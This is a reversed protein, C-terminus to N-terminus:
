CGALAQEFDSILDRSDEIGISVRVLSETVGCEQRQLPTLEYHSTFAPVCVTTEVGGLSMAPTAVRLKELFNTASCERRLELSLMGGFGSMQAAAIEHHRHSELGPYLVDVVADQTELFQAVALANENQRQVRVALTRLSRDLLYCDLPNLVGGYMVATTRVRELLSARGVAAGCTLDSHGSLYKTGSHLVLDVGCDIPNQNIPSAFTNDVVTVIDHNRAWESFARLDILELRPNTPSETYALRTNKKVKAEFCDVANEVFDYEIGLREFENVIFSHTGGYLGVPLLIHDGPKVISLLSTSIAAMGSGFVLGSEAHELDAIKQAVAQQNPTNFCRPYVREGKELFHYSTSTHVPPVIGQRVDHKVAVCQTASHKM